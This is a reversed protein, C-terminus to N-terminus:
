HVTSGNLAHIERASFKMTLSPSSFFCESFYEENAKFLLLIKSSTFGKELGEHKMKGEDEGKITKSISSQHKGM